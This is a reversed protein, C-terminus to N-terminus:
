AGGKSASETLRFNGRGDSVFLGRRASLFAALHGIPNKEGGMIGQATLYELITKRHMEGNARLIVLIGDEMKENKTLNSSSAGSGNRKPASADKSSQIQGPPMEYLALLDKIRQIKQHRAQLEAELEALELRLTQVIKDM